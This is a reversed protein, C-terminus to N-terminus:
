RQSLMSGSVLGGSSTSNSCAKLIVSAPKSWYCFRAAGRLSNSRPAFCNALPPSRFRRSKAPRCTFCDSATFVKSSKNASSPSRARRRGAPLAVTAAISPPICPNPLFIRSSAPSTHSAASFSGLSARASSILWNSYQVWTSIIARPSDRSSTYRFNHAHQSDRNGVFPRQTLGGGLDERLGAVPAAGIGLVQRDDIGDVLDLM